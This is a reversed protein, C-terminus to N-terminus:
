NVRRFRQQNVGFAPAAGIRNWTMEEGNFAVNFREVQNIAGFPGNAVREEPEIELVNNDFRYKFNVQINPLNVRGRGDRDFTYRIKLNFLNNGTQEWTGVIPSKALYYILFGLGACGACGVFLLLGAGAFGGLLMFMGKGSKQKKRKGRRPEEDQPEDDEERSNEDRSDRKRRPESDDDNELRAPTEDDEAPVDIEPVDDGLNKSAAASAPMPLTSVATADEMAPAEFATACKPCKVKKGAPIPNASKLIARCLPCSVSFAM